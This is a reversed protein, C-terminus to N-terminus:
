VVKEGMLWVGSVNIDDDFTVLDADLGIAIEGKVGAYGCHRAPTKTIMRVAAWLPIGAKKYVTRVLRDSTAVSGAFCNRAEPKCVGDEIYVKFKAPGFDM